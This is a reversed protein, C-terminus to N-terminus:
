AGNAHAFTQEGETLASIPMKDPWKQTTLLVLVTRQHAKLWMDQREDKSM